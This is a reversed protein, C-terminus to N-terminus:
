SSSLRRCYQACAVMGKFYPLGHSGGPIFLLEHDKDAKILAHVLQLTSSPEVNRDLEGAILMLAGNLKAAHYVNSSDRYSEDVPYGMYQENWWIKDMRNDHCGSDAAAAKYFDGHHLLAAVASQGGASCGYIGVRSLDMWPRTSAAARIWAIRDPFGADKLNKYCVDHFAKSRWNTGMGDLQVVVYGQDARERQDDLESFSKPTSFDHPSAYIKELVPYQKSPDFNSPRIIIGYIMTKQDRGTAAFIEPPNWGERACLDAADVRELQVLQHGSQAERLVVTPPTDVRSWTDILYRKNPAWKWTHTGNGETSVQLGSGDFNICALHAYYPDQDPVMGYGRFLITRSVEDVEEVSHVNWEGQTVQNRLSGSELDFLYLHNWGDRESMWLLENSKDMVLKYDKQTYDIFTDSSEEVLARVIGDRRMSIVRLHKHGRENFLFRYCEGGKSWGWHTLEYPFRFLEDSTPVERRRELDFMRPRELRVRDGPKFFLHSHLKPQLQDSPSSEIWHVKHEVKPVFQYAVVFRGDPSLYVDGSDYRNFETGGFSIQDAQDESDDNASLWINYDRVFVHPKKTTNIETAEEEEEGEPQKPRDTKAGEKAKVTRASGKIVFDGKGKVTAKYVALPRQTEKDVLRWVDGEANAMNYSKGADITGYSEPVGDYGIWLMEVPRGMENIFKVVVRRTSKTSPVEEALIRSESDDFEGDWVELARGVPLQWVSGHCRFRVWSANQGLDIWDFPLSGHTAKLGTQQSLSEALAKHDFAPKRVRTLADVYIFESGGTALQRRYWFAYGSPLWHPVITSQKIYRNEM